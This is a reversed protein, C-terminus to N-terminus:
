LKLSKRVRVILLQYRPDKRADAFLPSYMLWSYQLGHQDMASNEYEFFSDLDGLAYHIFGIENLNVPGTWGKEIEKIAGLAGNRDGSRAAIFGKMWKMWRSTPEESEALSYHQKAKELDGKCLYYESLARDTGAPALLATKEWHNLADRERGVYYYFIGLRSVYQPMLPSLRYCAESHKIGNELDGKVFEVSSLIFHAEPLSPNFELAMRAEAECGPIDDLFFKLIAYIAHAEALQPDLQVAKKVALEVKPIVKEDPEYGENVLLVYCQAVGAYARAFNPDLSIAQEFLVIAQRYSPESGDGFLQKGRLYLTYAETNETSKKEIVRREEGVLKIRLEGAVKEAIESQIAFVDELQRDYNQAWLHGETATDILQVTVRVRHGAKRVSGELLSGVGLERAIEKAKKTTGKYGMVSTRAIVTLQRVGSLSTILEETMGDVFYGDEPDPSMNTLPLVAIRNRYQDKSDVLGSDTEGVITVFKNALKAHSSQVSSWFNKNEEDGPTFLYDYKVRDEGVPIRQACAVSVGKLERSSSIEPKVALYYLAIKEIERIHIGRRSASELIHTAAILVKDGTDLAPITIENSRLIRSLLDTGKPRSRMIEKLGEISRGGSGALVYCIRKNTPRGPELYPILAEYPWKDGERSDVEDVFCLVPKKSEDITELQRRFESEGTQALNLEKFEIGSGLARTLENVFHSKGSGPAGWILFSERGPTENMLSSSIKLRFDKLVNRVSDKYRVYGGVIRYRELSLQELDSLLTKAEEEPLDSIM